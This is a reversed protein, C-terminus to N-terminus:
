KFFYVVNKPSGDFYMKFGKQVINNMVMFCKNEGIIDAHLEIMIKRITSNDLWDCHDFLDEEGGEIDMVLYTPKHDSIIVNIDTTPVEVKKIINANITKSTSSWFDEVINFSVSKNQLNKSIVIENKLIFDANNKNMNKRILPIMNPNGEYTLVKGNNIKACYIANFGTGTGLELLVDDSTFTEQLIKNEDIEYDGRVINGFIKKSILGDDICLYISNITKWKALHRLKYYLDVYNNQSRKLFSKIYAKM